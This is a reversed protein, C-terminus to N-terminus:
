MVRVPKRFPAGRPSSELYAAAAAFMANEDFIVWM